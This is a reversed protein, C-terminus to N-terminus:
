TMTLHSPQRPLYVANVYHLKAQMDYILTSPPSPSTLQGHFCWSQNLMRAQTNLEVYHLTPVVSNQGRCIKEHRALLIKKELLAADQVPGHPWM